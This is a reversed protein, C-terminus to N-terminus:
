IAAGAKTNKGFCNARKARNEDRRYYIHHLKKSRKHDWGATKKDTSSEMFFYVIPNGYDDTHFIDM